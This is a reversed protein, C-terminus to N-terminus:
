SPAHGAIRQSPSDQHLAEAVRDLRQAVEGSFGPGEDPSLLLPGQLAAIQTAARRRANLWDTGPRISAPEYAALDLDREITGLSVQAQAALAYRWLGGASRNGGRELNAM